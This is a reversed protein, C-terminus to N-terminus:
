ADTEAKERNVPRRTSEGPVAPAVPLPWSHTVTVGVPDGARLRPPGPSTALLHGGLVSVVHDTHPGRYRVTEVWGPLDGDLRVWDPRVLVQGRASGAGPPRLASADLFSAPGTLRATEVDVPQMYLQRPTGVQVLRGRRLVAIRDAIALAEAANHTAYLAAAGLSARRRAIEELVVSRLHTDLHATPEDFLFLAPDRALARALGVRQQEGGSLQAPFRDALALLGLRELLGGAKQRSATKSAGRRRMPYAVTDLVTLHPWLAAGQFVLGVRREEPPVWRGRGAVVQDGITVVGSDPEIFGAVTHLLTTKGSGSSGLLAIVEGANLELDLGALVSVHGYSVSLDALRLASTTTM